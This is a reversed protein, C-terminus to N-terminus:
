KEWQEATEPTVEALLEGFAKLREPSFRSDPRTKRGTGLEPRQVLIVDAGRDEWPYDGYWVVPLGEFLEGEYRSEEAGDAGTEWFPVPVLFCRCGEEKQFREWLPAMDPWMDWRAPVFVIEKTEEFEQELSERAKKGLAAAARVFGQRKGGDRERWVSYLAECYQELIGVTATGEGAEAEISNGAEIACSQTDELLQGLRESGEGAKRSERELLGEARELLELAQRIQKKIQRRM